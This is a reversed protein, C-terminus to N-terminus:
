IEYIKNLKRYVAKNWFNEFENMCEIFYNKLGVTGKKGTRVLSSSESSSEMSKSNSAMSKTRQRSKLKADENNNSSSSSNNSSKNTSRKRAAPKKTPPPINEDSDNSVVDKALPPLRAM